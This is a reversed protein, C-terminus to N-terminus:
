AMRDLLRIVEAEEVQPFVEYHRSVSRFDLPTALVAVEDCLPAVLDVAERPAVPACAILCRPQRDRLVRLAAAMTSGTALGDDIVLVVRDRVEASPGYTARRRRMLAMQERVQAEVWAMGTRTRHFYPALAVTGHEDVAGVALEPDIASPIKRVMVVDLEGELRDAIIRGMPVAGRPISLILPRTGRWQLLGEAMLAAAQARDRFPLKVPQNTDEM